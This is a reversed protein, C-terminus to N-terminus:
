ENELTIPGNYDEFGEGDWGDSHYGINWFPTKNIVTGVYCLSNEPYNGPPIEKKTALIIFGMSKNKMLKPFPKTTDLINKETVKIM